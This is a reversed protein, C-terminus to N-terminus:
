LGACRRDPRLLRQEHTSVTVFTSGNYFSAKTSGSEDLRLLVRDGLSIIEAGNTDATTLKAWAALTVSTPSGILGTSQIRTSGDFTLANGIMGTAWAATGTVTGTHSYGSADAASTGSSENLKWHATLTSLQYLAAIDAVSLARTYVRADFIAGNWKRAAVETNDGIRVAHNNTSVAGSAPASNQQVGNIYIRVMSGDYVGAVHYWNGDNVSTSSNTYKLGGGTGWAFHVTNNSGDRSLRWASDGKAIIAQWDHTFSTVRIWCAVTFNGTIDYLSENPVNVYGSGASNFVASKAGIRPVETSGALSYSGSYTGHNANSSSDTATTGSTELLKWHGILNSTIDQAFTPASFSAVIAWAVLRWGVYRIGFRSVQM